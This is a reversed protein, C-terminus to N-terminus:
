SKYSKLIKLIFAFVIKIVYFVYLCLFVPPM